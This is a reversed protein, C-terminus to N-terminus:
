LLHIIVALYRFGLRKILLSCGVIFSVSWPLTSAWDTLHFHAIMLSWYFYIVVGHETRRIKPDYEQALRFGVRRLKRFVALAYFLVMPEVELIELLSRISDQSCLWPTLM